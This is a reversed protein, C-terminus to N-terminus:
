ADDDAGKQSELWEKIGAFPAANGNGASAMIRKKIQWPYEHRDREPPGRKLDATLAEETAGMALIEVFFAVSEGIDEPRRGRVNSRYLFAM